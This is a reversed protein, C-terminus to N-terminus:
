LNNLNKSQNKIESDYVDKGSENMYEMYQNVIDDIIKNRQEKDLDTKETFM